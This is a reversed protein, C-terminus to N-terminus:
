LAENQAIKLSNQSKPTQAEGGSFDQPIETASITGQLRWLPLALGAGQQGQFQSRKAEQSLMMNSNTNIVDQSNETSIIGHYLRTTHHNQYVM